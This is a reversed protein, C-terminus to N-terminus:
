WLICPRCRSSTARWPSQNEIRCERDPPEKHIGPPPSLIPGTTLRREISAASVTSVGRKKWGVEASSLTGWLPCTVNHQQFSKSSRVEGRIRCKHPKDGAWHGSWHSKDRPVLVRM